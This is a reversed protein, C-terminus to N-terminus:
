IHPSEDELDLQTQLYKIVAETFEYSEQARDIEIILKFADSKRPDLGSNFNTFNLMKAIEKPTGSINIEM